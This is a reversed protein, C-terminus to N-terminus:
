LVIKGFPIQEKELLQIEREHCSFILVQRQMEKLYGLLRELRQMDFYVFADDSVYKFIRDKDGVFDLKNWGMHPIKLEPPVAGTM